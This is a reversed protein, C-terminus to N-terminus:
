KGLFVTFILPKGKLFHWFRCFDFFHSNREWGFISFVKRRGGFTRFFECRTDGFKKGSQPGARIKLSAGSPACPDQLAGSSYATSTTFAGHLPEFLNLTFNCWFYTQLGGEMSRPRYVGERSRPRNVGRGLGLDM